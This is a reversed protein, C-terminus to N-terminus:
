FTSIGDIFHCICTLLRFSVSVSILLYGISQRNLHCLKRYWLYRKWRNWAVHTWTCWELGGCEIIMPCPPCSYSWNQFNILCLCCGNESSQPQDPSVHTTDKHESHFELFFTSKLNKIDKGCRNKISRESVSAEEDFPVCMVHSLKLSVICLYFIGIQIAWGPPFGPKSCESWGIVSM